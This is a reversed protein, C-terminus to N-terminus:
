LWRASAHCEPHVASNPKGNLVFEGSNHAKSCVELVMQQLEVRTLASLGCTLCTCGLEGASATIFTAMSVAACMHM